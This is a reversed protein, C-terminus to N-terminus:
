NGKNTNRFYKSTLIVLLSTIFISLLVQLLSTITGGKLIDSESFWGNAAIYILSIAFANNLFHAWVALWINKSWYFLYGFYVGLVLRPLFGYFQLHFASFIIAALGIAIHINKIWQSFIRQLIGRFLFEEGIAPIIAIILLNFFYDSTQMNDTMRETLQNREIEMQQLKDELFNIWEPLKLSSNWDILFNIIPVSFILTLLVMLMLLLSPFNGTSMYDEGAHFLIYNLLIAPILFLGFSQSIQFFRLMSIDAELLDEKLLINIEEISFSYVPIIILITIFTVLLYSTFMVFLTFVLKTLPTANAFLEKLFNNKM